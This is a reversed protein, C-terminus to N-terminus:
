KCSPNKEADSHRVRRSRAWPAKRDEDETSFMKFTWIVKGRRVGNWRWAKRVVPVAVAVSM